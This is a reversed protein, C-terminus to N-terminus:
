SKSLEFQRRCALIFQRFSKKWEEKPVVISYNQGVLDALNKQIRNEVLKPAVDSGAFLSRLAEQFKEPDILILSTDIYFKVVALGSEGLTDLLSIDVADLLMRGFRDVKSSLYRPNVKTQL